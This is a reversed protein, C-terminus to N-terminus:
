VPDTIENLSKQRIFGWGVFFVALSSLATRTWHWNAWTALKAAVNPLEISQTVFETNAGAFYVPFTITCIFICIVGLTLSLRRIPFVKWSAALAAITLILSIMNLPVMLKPLLSLDNTMWDLFAQPELSQWFKVMVLAIFLLAGSFASLAILAATQLFTALKQM